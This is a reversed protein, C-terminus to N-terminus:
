RSRISGDGREATTMTPFASGKKEWNTAEDQDAVKAKRFEAQVDIVLQKVALRYLQSIAVGEFDFMMGQDMVHTVPADKTSKIRPYVTRVKDTTKPEPTKVEGLDSTSVQLM